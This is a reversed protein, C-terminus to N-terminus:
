LVTSGSGPVGSMAHCTAGVTAADLEAQNLLEVVVMAAMGEAPGEEWAVSMDFPVSMAGADNCFTVDVPILCPDDLITVPLESGKFAVAIVDAQNILLVPDLRGVLAVPVSAPLIRCRLPVPILDGQNALEVSGTGSCFGIPVADLFGKGNRPVIM